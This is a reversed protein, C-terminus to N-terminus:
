ANIILKLEGDEMKLEQIFKLNMQTMWYNTSTRKYVIGTETNLYLDNHKSGSVEVSTKNSETIATGSFWHAGRINVRAPNVLDGNNTWTLDGNSDVSPTFWAAKPLGVTIVPNRKTGAQTTTIQFTPTADARLANV